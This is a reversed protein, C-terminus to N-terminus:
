SKQEAQAQRRRRRAAVFSNVCLAVFMLCLVAMSLQILVATTADTGNRLVKGETILRPIKPLAMVAPMIFGLLAIAAAAHMAHKRLSDKAMALIGLLTLMGGFAAPILATVSSTGTYFYGGVGVVALLTGFLIAAFPM